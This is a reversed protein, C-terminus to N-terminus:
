LQERLVLGGNILPNELKGRKIVMGPIRFVSSQRQPQGTRQFHVGFDM